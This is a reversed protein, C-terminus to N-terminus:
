PFTLGGSPTITFHCNRGDTTVWSGAWLRTRGIQQGSAYVGYYFGSIKELYEHFTGGSITPCLEINEVVTGSSVYQSTGDSCSIVAGGTAPAVTCSTGPTGAQGQPGPPGVPGQPGTPGTEGQPGQEGTQGPDGQPGTPGVPGQAGPTGPDGQPGTSGDVGPAGPIGQPGMPGAEGPEGKVGTPGTIVTLERGCGCHAAVMVLLIFSAVIGKIMVKEVKWKLGGRM